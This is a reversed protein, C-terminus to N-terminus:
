RKEQFSIKGSSTSVCDLHTSPKPQTLTQRAALLAELEAVRKELKQVRAPQDNCEPWGWKQKLLNGGHAAQACDEVTDGWTVVNTWEGDWALLIVQRFGYKKALKEAASIPIQNPM